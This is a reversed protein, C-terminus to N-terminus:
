EPLPQVMFGLAAVRAPERESWLADINRARVICDTLWSTTPGEFEFVMGEADDRHDLVCLSEAGADDVEIGLALGLPHLFQRNVEQLYGQTRLEDLGLRKAQANM